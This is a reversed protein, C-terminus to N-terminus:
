LLLFNYAINAEGFLYKVSFLRRRVWDCRNRHGEDSKLFRVWPHIYKWVKSRELFLNQFVRRDVLFFNYSRKNKLNCDLKRIWQSYLSIKWDTQTSANCSFGWFLERDSHITLFRLNSIRLSFFFCVWLVQFFSSFKNGTFEKRSSNTTTLLMPWTLKVVAKEEKRNIRQEHKLLNKNVIFQNNSNPQNIIFM